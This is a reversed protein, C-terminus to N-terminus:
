TQGGGEEFEVGCIVGRISVAGAFYTTCSLGRGRVALVGERLSLRVADTECLLIKRCGQICIERRGRLEIFPGSGYIEEPLVLARRETASFRNRIKKMKSIGGDNKKEPM